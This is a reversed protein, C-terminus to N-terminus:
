KAGAIAKDFFPSLYRGSLQDCVLLTYTTQGKEKTVLGKVYIPLLFGEKNLVLRADGVRYSIGGATTKEEWHSHEAIEVKGQCAALLTDVLPNEATVDNKNEEAAKKYQSLKAMDSDSVSLSVVLGQYYTDNAACRVQYLKGQKLANAALASLEKAQTSNEPFVKESVLVKEISAEPQGEILWDHIQSGFFSRQGDYVNVSNGLDLVEGGSLTLSDAEAAMGGMLCSVSVAAVALWKKLKM